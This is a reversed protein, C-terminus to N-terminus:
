KFDLHSNMPPYELPDLGCAADLPQGQVSSSPSGVQHTSSQCSLPHVVCLCLYPGTRIGHIILRCILTKVESLMRQARYIEEHTDV